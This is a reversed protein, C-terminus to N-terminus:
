KAVSSVHSWHCSSDCHLAHIFVTYGICGKKHIQGPMIGVKCQESAIIGPCNPGLLRSKCQKLLKSKARVMDQQPIGETICVILEIYIATANCGTKEKAEAVSGFVPLGLHTSGAQLFKISQHGDSHERKNPSVGGVVKTGYEIMQQGHFTGQKGTFGQIIVKTDKNIKLNNITRSYMTRVMPRSLQMWSPLSMTRFM